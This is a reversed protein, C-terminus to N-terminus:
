AFALLTAALAVVKEVPSDMLTGMDFNSDKLKVLVSLLWLAAKLQGSDFSSAGVSYVVTSAVGTVMSIILNTNFLDGKFTKTLATEGVGAYKETIASAATIAAAVQLAGNFNDPNLPGLDMGGRLQLVSQPVQSKTQFALISCVFGLM